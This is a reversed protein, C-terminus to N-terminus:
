LCRLFEGIQACVRALQDESLNASSPLSIARGVLDASWDRGNHLFQCSSYPKSLHMPQWLPRVQIKNEILTELLSGLSTSARGALLLTFLWNSSRAWDQEVQFDLLGQWTNLEKRYFDAIQRKKQVFHELQELQGVVVAAQLNSLRYNYGIEHHIYYLPDDKAQTSLYRAKEALAQDDTALMGGGGGTVIKNGNFSYCAITATSGVPRERYFAGLSESADEILPLEFHSALARLPEIDVPHGLVHVPMLAAIRGGSAKNFLKGQRTECDRVLFNRVLEVNMQWSQPECDVLVPTAGVYRLSNLPAIFTLDSVLVEEGPVVGAVLLALHLASTGSSTAVGHSLGVKSAVEKELRSVFKGASSIWGSELCEQVYLAENGSLVPESLPIM